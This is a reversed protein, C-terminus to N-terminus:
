KLWFISKSNEFIQKEIKEPNENRLEKIKELVYKTYSPENEQKWRFPDPTLYPSDTEIIINKLNINKATEQIELANKFTVIWSFWIKCNNSFNILKNAYQLDESYCHFIFNKYNMQKLIYYIDDKSERNHIIIPLNYKEALLIQAKFFIKQLEKKKNIIKIQDEKKFRSIEEDNEPKLWYYDLGCEWIAVVKKEKINQNILEEIKSIAEALDLDYVDCPHIWVSCFVREYKKALNLVKVNEKPCTWILNLFGEPNEELFNKIIQDANKKKALNPHCHTDYLM